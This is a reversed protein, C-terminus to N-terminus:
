LQLIKIELTGSHLQMHVECLQGLVPFTGQIHMDLEQKILKHQCATFVVLASEAPCSCSHSREAAIGIALSDKCAVPYQEEAAM